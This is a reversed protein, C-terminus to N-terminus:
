EDYIGSALRELEGACLALYVTQDDLLVVSAEPVVELSVLALYECWLELVQDLAHDGVVRGLTRCDFLDSGM